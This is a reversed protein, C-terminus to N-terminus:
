PNAERIAFAKLAAALDSVYISGAACRVLSENDSTRLISLLDFTCDDLRKIEDRIAKALEELEARRKSSM